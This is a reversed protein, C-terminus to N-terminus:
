WQEHLVERICELRDYPELETRSCYRALVASNQSTGWVLACYGALIGCTSNVCCRVHVHCVERM